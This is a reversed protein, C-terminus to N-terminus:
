PRQGDEAVEQPQQGEWTGDARVTVVAPARGDQWYDAALKSAAEEKSAFQKSMPYDPHEWWGEVAERALAEARERTRTVFIRQGPKPQHGPCFHDLHWDIHKMERRGDPSPIIFPTVGDRSNWLWETLMGDDTQYKMLNFAEPHTNGARIALSPRRVQQRDM